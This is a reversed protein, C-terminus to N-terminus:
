HAGAAVPDLGLRRPVNHGPSDQGWGSEAGAVAQRFAEPSVATQQQLAVATLAALDWTGKQGSFTRATEEDLQDRVAAIAQGTLRGNQVLDERESETAVNRATIMVAEVEAQSHRGLARETKWTLEEGLLDRGREVAQKQGRQTQQIQYMQSM